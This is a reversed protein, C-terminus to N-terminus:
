QTWAPRQGGPRAAIRLYKHGRVPTTGNITLTYTHHINIRATPVLTVSNTASDFIASGVHIRHSPHGPEHVPGAITYNTINEASTPDLPDNFYIVLYTKQDHYGYRVVNMVQPGDLPPNTVAPVVQVSVPPATIVSYNADGSYVATINDRGSALSSTSLSATGSVTPSAISNSLGAKGTLPETGLYTTGDYFAVTGTLPVTGVETTTFTATFTVSEGFSSQPMSSVLTGVATKM